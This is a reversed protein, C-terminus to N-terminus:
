KFYLLLLTKYINGDKDLEKKIKNTDYKSKELSSDM